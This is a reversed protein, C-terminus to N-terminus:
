AHPVANRNPCSENRCKGYLVLAHSVVEFQLLEGATDQIRQLRPDCFESVRQCDLCILHDHQRSGFSREYLGLHQGFQHKKVLECEVLLDLTNYVTARSVSHGQERVKHYLSEVDYHGAGTYLCELIAYRGPTKRLQRAELFATFRDRVTKLLTPFQSNM